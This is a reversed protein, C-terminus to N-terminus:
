APSLRDACTGLFRSSLSAGNYNNSFLNSLPMVEDHGWAHKKYGEWAHLFARKVWERRHAEEEVRGGKEDVPGEHQVRPMKGGGKIESVKLRPPVWGGQTIFVDEHKVLKPRGTRDEYEPLPQTRQAAGGVRGTRKLHEAAAM